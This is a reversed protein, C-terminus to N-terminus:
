FQQEKTEFLQSPPGALKKLDPEAGIDKIKNFM